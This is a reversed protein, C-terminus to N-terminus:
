QRSGAGEIAKAPWYIIDTDRPSPDRYDYGAASGGNDVADEGVSYLRPLRVDPRYIFPKESYPDIILKRNDPVAVDSLVNPWSGSRCYHQRLLLVTCTARYDALSRLENRVLRPMGLLLFSALPHRGLESTRWKREVQEVSRLMSGSLSSQAARVLDAYYGDIASALEGPSVRSKALAGVDLGAFVEARSRHLKGEPYLSQIISVAGSWEGCMVDAVCVQALGTDTLMEFAAACHKEDLIGQEAAARIAAFVAIRIETARRAWMWFGNSRLHDAFRLCRRWADLMRGAQDPGERWSEAILIRCARRGTRVDPLLIGIANFPDTPDPKPRFWYRPHNTAKAFLVMAQAAKAAYAEVRPHDGIRWTPGLVLEKLASEVDDPADPMAGGGGSPTGGAGITPASWFGDYVKADELSKGAGNRRDSWSVYDTPHHFDPAPPAGGIADIDARRRYSVDTADCGLLSAVLLIAPVTRSM